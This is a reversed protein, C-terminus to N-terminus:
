SIDVWLDGVEPDSPETASVTLRMAFDLGAEDTRVKVLKDRQGTYSNPVDNLDTFSKVITPMTVTILGASIAGQISRLTYFKDDVERSQGPFMVLQFPLAEIENLDQLVQNASLDLRGSTFLPTTEILM